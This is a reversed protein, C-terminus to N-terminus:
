VLHSLNPRESYSMEALQTPKLSILLTDQELVGCAALFQVKSKIITPRIVKVVSSRGKVIKVTSFLLSVASISLFIDFM